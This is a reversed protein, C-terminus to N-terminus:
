TDGMTALQQDYQTKELYQSERTIIL